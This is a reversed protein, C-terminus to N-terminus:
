QEVPIPNLLAVKKVDCLAAERMQHSLRFTYTGAEAIHLRVPNTTSAYDASKWVGLADMLTDGVIHTEKGGTATEMEISFHINQYRYEPSYVAQVQLEFLGTDAVMWSAKVTDQMDWCEDGFRQLVLTESSSCAALGGILILIGFLNKM